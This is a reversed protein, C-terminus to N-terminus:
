QTIHPRVCDGYELSKILTTFFRIIANKVKNMFFGKLAGLVYFLNMTFNQAATKTSKNKTAYIPTYRTFHDSIALIYEYGGSCKDVKLSDIGVIDMPGSSKVTGLPAQPLVHPKRQTLCICKNKIFDAIDKEM